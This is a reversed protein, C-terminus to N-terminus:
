FLIHLQWYVHIDCAATSLLSM